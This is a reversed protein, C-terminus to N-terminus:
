ALLTHAAGVVLGDELLCSVSTHICFESRFFIEQKCILPKNGGKPHSSIVIVFRFKFFQRGLYNGASFV